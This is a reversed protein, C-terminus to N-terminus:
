VKLDKKAFSLLRGEIFNVSIDVLPFNTSVKWKSITITEYGHNQLMVFSRSEVKIPVVPM